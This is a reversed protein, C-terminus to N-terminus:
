RLWIMCSAIHIMALFVRALKEFRSSIRRYHKIKNFFIEVLHRERYVHYDCDRPEKRNSRPPIVAISGRREIQKVFDDSDYGKDALVYETQVDCSDLLAPAATIDAENGGTLLFRLPNGM